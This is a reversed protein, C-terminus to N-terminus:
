RVVLTSVPANRLVKDAVGGVYDLALDSRGRAGLVVVTHRAAAKILEEAPHGHRVDRVVVIGRERLAKETKLLFPEAPAPALTFAGEPRSPVVFTITITSGLKAALASALEAARRSDESGDIALLIREFPNADKAVLVSCPALLSVQYSVSGLVHPGRPNLGRSGVAVLQIAQRRAYEAIETAPVGSAVSPKAVLGATEVEKAAEHVIREGVGSLERLLPELLARQRAYEELKPVVHLLHIRAQFARGLRIAAGLAQRSLDSGDLGVLIESPGGSPKVIVNPDPRRM